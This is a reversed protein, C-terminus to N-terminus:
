CIFHLQLVADFNPEYFFAISTRFDGKTQRVRHRTAKYRGKTWVGRSSALLPLHVWHFSLSSGLVRLLVSSDVLVPSFVSLGEILVRHLALSVLVKWCEHSIGVVLPREERVTSTRTRAYLIHKSRSRKPQLGDAMALLNSAMAIPNSATIKKASAFKHGANAQRSELLDSRANRNAGIRTPM